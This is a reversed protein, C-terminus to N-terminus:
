MKGACLRTVDSAVTTPGEESDNQGVYEEDEERMTRIRRM